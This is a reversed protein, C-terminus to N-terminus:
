RVGCGTWCDYDLNTCYFIGNNMNSESFMVKYHRNPELCFASDQENVKFFVEVLDDPEEPQYKILHKYSGNKVEFTTDKEYLFRGNDLNLYLSTTKNIHAGLYIHIFTSDPDKRKGIEEYMLSDLKRMVRERIMIEELSDPQTYTLSYYKRVIRDKLDSPYSCSLFLSCLSIIVFKNIM